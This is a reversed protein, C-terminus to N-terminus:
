GFWHSAQEVAHEEAPRIRKLWNNLGAGSLASLEILEAVPNLRAVDERFAQLDFPVAPLLDVKNLVVLNAARVLHPHKAAKDDGAAVSFVVTSVDQGLDPLGPLTLTGVNEILLLDLAALDLSRLADSVHTADLLVADGPNVKVTRGLGGRAPGDHEPEAGCTVVGVRVGPSLRQVTASVLSSKGCGPGGFLGIARVGAERLLARNQRALPHTARPKRETTTSM